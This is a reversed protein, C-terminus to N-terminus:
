NNDEEHKIAAICRDVERLLNNVRQRAREVNGNEGSMVASLEASKLRTDLDRVKEELRRKEGQLRDREKALARCEAAIRSHDAILMEVEDRLRKIIEKEAMLTCHRKQAVTKNGM